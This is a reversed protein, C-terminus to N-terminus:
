VALKRGRNYIAAAKSELAASQKKTLHTNYVRFSVKTGDAFVVVYDKGDSYADEVESNDSLEEYHVVAVIEDGRFKVVQQYTQNEM